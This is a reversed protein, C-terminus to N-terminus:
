HNFTRNLGVSMFYRQYINISVLIALQLEERITYLSGVDAWTVDPVTAFGERKASPQVVRLAAVFDSHEIRLLSLREPSLPPEARLWTLLNALDLWKLQSMQQVPIKSGNNVDSLSAVPLKEKLDSNENALYEMAGGTYILNGSNELTQSEKDPEKAAEQVKQCKEKVREEKLEKFVRHFNYMVLYYVYHAFM